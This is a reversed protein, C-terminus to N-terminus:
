RWGWVCIHYGVYCVLAFIVLCAITCAVGVLPWWNPGNLRADEAIMDDLYEDASIDSARMRQVHASCRARWDALRARAAAIDAARQAECPPDRTPIPSREGCMSCIWHWVKGDKEIHHRATEHACTM